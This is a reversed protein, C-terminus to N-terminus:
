RVYAGGLTNICLLTTKLLEPNVGNTFKTTIDGLTIEIVPITNTECKHSIPTNQEQMHTENFVPPVIELKVVEQTPNKIVSGKGNEPLDCGEDKLKNVWRYLSSPNVNNAKCWQYDSLGSTRCAMVIEYIEEKKRYKGM